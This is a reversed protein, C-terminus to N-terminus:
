FLTVLLYIICAVIAVLGMMITLGVVTGNKKEM